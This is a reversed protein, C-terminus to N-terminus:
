KGVQYPTFNPNGENLKAALFTFLAKGLEKEQETVPGDIRTLGYLLEGAAERLASM